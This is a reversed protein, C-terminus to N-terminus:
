DDNRNEAPDMHGIDTGSDGVLQLAHRRVREATTTVYQDILETPIDIEFQDQLDEVFGDFGEGYAQNANVAWETLFQHAEEKLILTGLKEHYTLRKLAANALAEQEKAVALSSKNKNSKQQEREMLFRFVQATDYENGEGRDGAKVFPFQPDRQYDTFTRESIGFVAALEKKNVLMGQSNPNTKM